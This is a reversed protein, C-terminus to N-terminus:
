VDPLPRPPRDAGGAGQWQLIARATEVPEGSAMWPNISYQVAFHDPPCMLYARPRPLRSPVASFALSTSTLADATLADAPPAPYTQTMPGGQETGHIVWPDAGEAYPRCRSASIRM